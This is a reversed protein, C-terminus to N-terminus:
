DEESEGYKIICPNSQRFKFKISKRFYNNQLKTNIM